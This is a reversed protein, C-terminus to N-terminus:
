GSLGYVKAKYDDFYLYKSTTIKALFFGLCLIKMLEKSLWWSESGEKRIELFRVWVLVDLFSTSIDLIGQINNTLNCRQDRPVILGKLGIEIVKAV